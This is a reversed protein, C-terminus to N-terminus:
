PIPAFMWQENSDNGKWHGVCASDGNKGLGLCLAGGWKASGITFSAMGPEGRIIWRWKGDGTEKDHPSYLISRDGSSNCIDKSCALAGDLKAANELRYTGDDQRLVRWITRLQRLIGSADKPATTELPAGGQVIFDGAGNFTVKECSLMAGIKVNWIKYWGNAPAKDLSLKKKEAATAAKKAVAKEALKVAKKAAKAQQKVKKEAKVKDKAGAAKVPGSKMAIKMAKPISIDQLSLM